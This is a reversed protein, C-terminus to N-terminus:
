LLQLYYQQGHYLKDSSPITIAEKGKYHSIVLQLYTIWLNIYNLQIQIVLQMYCINIAM